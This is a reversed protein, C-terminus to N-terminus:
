FPLEDEDVQQFGTEAPAYGGPAAPAAAQPAYPAQPAYSSAQAGGGGFEGGQNASPLFEVNDADVEMVFRKVGDNGDYSRSRLEGVVCCKRGKSLYRACTEGLQRWANITFFEAESQGSEAAAKGQRRNVALGFSCVSVGNPTTRLEPDRTLNGILFIKNM